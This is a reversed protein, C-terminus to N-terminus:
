RLIVIKQLKASFKDSVTRVFYIGSSVKQGRENRGNWFYSHLNYIKRVPELRRIFRGSVDYIELPIEEKQWHILEIWVEGHSPNPYVRHFEVGEVFREVQKEIAEKLVWNEPDLIMAVPEKFLRIRYDRTFQDNQVTLISDSGDSFIFKLDLPMVYLTQTQTQKITVEAIINNAYNQTVIWQYEYKPYFPYNLWQDFFASLDLGSVKECVEEFNETRVSGYTWRPDNLYSKLAEFFNEDGMVRRLMHLVWSGKDYVIRGFISSFTTTDSILITGDDTFYQTNMYSHYAESGPEIGNFGAWEAYLAESYSAFGENLWIDRWSACTVQDGFWQHGLEHVYLFTWGAGVRGISTLTQHEMGGGWGFQAMGYKEKLFPYPGFYFSLADLYDSMDAFYFQANNLNEPFVYYDLLMSDSDSYHYYNQFHAYPGAVISILYTAIPYRVQWHFTKRNGDDTFIDKLVGNSGVINGEPVTVFIDASDAKDSPTDKCPFWNRAGYPESLTWVFPSEDPMRDFVFAISGERQPNGSYYIEVDIEQGKLYASDLQLILFDESRDYSVAAGGVSDVKLQSNFNLTLQRLDDQLSLFKEAAHGNIERNAFDIKFRLRYYLADFKERQLETEFSKHLLSRTQRYDGKYYRETTKPISNVAQANLSLVTAAMLVLVITVIRM